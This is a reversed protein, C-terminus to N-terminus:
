HTEGKPVVAVYQHALEGEKIVKLLNIGLEDTIRGLLETLRDLVQGTSAPGSGNKTAFDRIVDVGRRSTVVQGSGPINSRTLVEYRIPM